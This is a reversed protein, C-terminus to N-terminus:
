DSAIRKSPENDGQVIFFRKAVLSRKLIAAATRVTTRTKPLFAKSQWEAKDSFDFQNQFLAWNEDWQHKKPLRTEDAHLKADLAYQVLEEDTLKSDKSLTSLEDLVKAM